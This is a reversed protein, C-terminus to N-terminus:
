KIETSSASNQLKNETPIKLDVYIVENSQLIYYVYLISNLIKLTYYM